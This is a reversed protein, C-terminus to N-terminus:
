NFTVLIMQFFTNNNTIVALHCIIYELGSTLLNRLYTLKVKDNKSKTLAKEVSPLKEPDNFYTFLDAVEKETLKEDDLIEFLRNVEDYVDLTVM